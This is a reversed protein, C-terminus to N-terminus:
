TGSNVRIIKQGSITIEERIIGPRKLTVIFSSSTGTGLSIQGSLRETNVAKINELGGRASLSKSIIEDVSQAYLSISLIIVTIVVSTINKRM